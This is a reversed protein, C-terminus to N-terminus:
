QEYCQYILALSSESLLNLNCSWFLVAVASEVQELIVADPSLQWNAPVVIVYYRSVPAHQWSSSVPYLHVIATSSSIVKVLRPARLIAPLAVWCLLLLFSYLIMNVSIM